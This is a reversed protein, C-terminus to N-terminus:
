DRTRGQREGIRDSQIERTEIRMGGNQMFIQYLQNLRPFEDRDLSTEWKDLTTKPLKSELIHVIMEPGVSIGLVSLSAVHQQTEDALKTMGSTTEKDLVSLNIILTLHRSILIRKVKYARELLDWAETYNIGDLAFIKIKNAADDILASKLYHLKDIESLDTQSGIMSHFANKFSLWNEYKSDFTPM